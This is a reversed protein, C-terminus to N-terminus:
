KLNNIAIALCEKLNPDTVNFFEQGKTKDSIGQVSFHSIKM